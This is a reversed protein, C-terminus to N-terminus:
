CLALLFGHPAQSTKECHLHCLSGSFSLFAHHPRQRLRGRGKQFPSNSSAGTSRLVSSTTRRHPRCDPAALLPLARSIGSPDFQAVRICFKAGTRDCVLAGGISAGRLPGGIRGVADSNSGQSRSPNENFQPVGGKSASHARGISKDDRRGTQIQPDRFRATTIVAVTLM